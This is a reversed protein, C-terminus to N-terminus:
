RQARHAVPFFDSACLTKEKIVRKRGSQQRWFFAVPFKTDALFSEQLLSQPAIACYKLASIGSRKLFFTEQVTESNHKKFLDTTCNISHTTKSILDM